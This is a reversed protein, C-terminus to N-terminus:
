KERDTKESRSLDDGYAHPRGGWIEVGDYGAEARRKEAEKLPYYFYVFTSQSM